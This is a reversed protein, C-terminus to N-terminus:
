WREIINDSLENRVKKLKEIGNGDIEHNVLGFLAKLVVQNTEEQKALNKEIKDFRGEADKEHDIEKKEIESVRNKINTAPSLLDKLAKIGNSLLVIGGLIASLWGWWELNVVGIGASRLLPKREPLAM